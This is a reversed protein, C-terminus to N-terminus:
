RPTASIAPSRQGAEVFGAAQARAYFDRAKEADGAVGRIHWQALRNPDYTQALLFIARSSGAQAARELLLRAGSIDHEKLLAEARDVLRKERDSPSAAQGPSAEQDPSAEQGSAAAERARVPEIERGAKLIALEAHLAMTERSVANARATEQGLANKLEAAEAEKARLLMLQGRQTDLEGSAANARAKERELAETLEASRFEAARFQAEQGKLTALERAAADARGRERELEYRVEAAKADSTRLVTLEAQLADRERTVAEAWTKAQERLQDMEAATDSERARLAVLNAELAERERVAADARETERKVANELEEQRPGATSSGVSPLSSSPIEGPRTKEVTQLFALLDPDTVNNMILSAFTGAELAAALLHDLRGLDNQRILKGIDAALQRSEPSSLLASLLAAWAQNAAVPPFAEVAGFSDPESSAGAPEDPIANRPNNGDVSLLGEPTSNDAAVAAVPILPGGTIVVV